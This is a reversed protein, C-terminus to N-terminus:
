HWSTVLPRCACRRVFILSAVVTENDTCRHHGVTQPANLRYQKSVSEIPSFRYTENGTVGKSLVARAVPFSTSPVAGKECRHSPLLPLEPSNARARRPFGQIPKGYEVAGVMYTRRHPASARFQPHASNPHADAGRRPVTGSGPPAGMLGGAGPMEGANGPRRRFFVM